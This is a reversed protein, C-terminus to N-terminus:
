AMTPTPQPPTLVSKAQGCMTSAVCSHHQHWTCVHGISCWAQHPAPAPRGSMSSSSSLQIGHLTLVSYSLFFPVKRACEGLDWSTKAFIRAPLFSFFWANEYQCPSAFPQRTANPLRRHTSQSPPKSRRNVYRSTVQAHHVPAQIPHHPTSLHSTSLVTVFIM